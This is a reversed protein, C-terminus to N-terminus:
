PITKPSNLASLHMLHVPYGTSSNERRIVKRLICISSMKPLGQLPCPALQPDICDQSSNPTEPGAESRCSQSSGTQNLHTHYRGLIDQISGSSRRTECNENGTLENSQHRQRKPIRGPADGRRLR